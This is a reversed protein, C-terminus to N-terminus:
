PFMGTVDVWKKDNGAIKMYHEITLEGRKMKFLKESYKGRRIAVYDFENDSGVYFVGSFLSSYRGMPRNVYQKVHKLDASEAHRLDVSWMFTAVVRWSLCILIVAACLSVVLRTKTSM